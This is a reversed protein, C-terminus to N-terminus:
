INSIVIAIFTLKRKELLEELALKLFVTLLPEAFAKLKPQM